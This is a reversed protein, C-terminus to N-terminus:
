GLLFPAKVEFSALSKIRLIASKVLREAEM